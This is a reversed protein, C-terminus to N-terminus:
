VRPQALKLYFLLLILIAPLAVLFIVAVFEPSLPLSEFLAIGSYALPSNRIGSLVGIMTPVVIAIFIYIVGFFNLKESFARIKMLLEFSVDEAIEHMINSLNGGTKLARIIHSVANKLANSRSRNGLNRLADEMATGEEVERLTKAVEESLVGYGSTAISQLTKYLGIGAKLETAMHRLAFPLERSILEGRIMANRKPILLIIISSFVFAFFAVIISFLFILHPYLNLLTFFAFSAVFSVIAVLFSVTTTIALYQAVSFRMNAAYLNEALQKTLNFSRLFNNILKGISGLRLYINGITKILPSHHYRLNEVSSLELRPAKGEAIIDRLESLEGGVAETPIGERKYRQKIKRVIEEVKRYDEERKEPM